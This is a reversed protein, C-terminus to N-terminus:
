KVVTMQRTLTIGGAELRYMYIGSSLGSADFSVQHRGAQRTEGVLTSVRRGLLDYVTLSVPGSEALEYRIVTVPNFPNPYNQSLATESPLGSPPEAPLPSGYTLYLEPGNAAALDHGSAKQPGSPAPRADPRAPAKAAPGDLTFEYEMGGVVPLRAGTRRDELYLGDRFGLQVDTATLTYTGPQSAEVHLPYRLGNRDTLSGPDPLVSIDLLEDGKQGALLVYQVSMPMLQYADGYVRDLSGQPGFGFWASNRMGEGSLELRVLDRDAQKGLFSGGSTRAQDHFAVSASGGAENHVFFAQFPAIIGDSLDGAGVGGSWTRWSGAGPDNEGTQEMGSDYNVDWVYAVDSLGTRGLDDFRVPASYPNGLLSWGDETENVDATHDATNGAGTVALMKPFGYHSGSDNPDDDEFVYALLGTGPAITQDLDDAATWDGSTEDWVFVNSEAAGPVNSNLPGQTWIPDLLASMTVEAPASLMRFGPTGTLAVMFAEDSEGFQLAPGTFPGGDAEHLRAGFGANGDLYGPVTVDSFFGSNSVIFAMGRVSVTPLGDLGLAEKSIAIEYGQRENGSNLVAYTVSGAPFVDAAAPGTVSGGGDEAGDSAPLVLFGSADAGNVAGSYDAMSLVVRRGVGDPGPAGYLTMGLDVEFDMTFSGSPYGEPSQNGSAALFGAAGPVGGLPQGPAVGNRESFDLMIGIADSDSLVLTADVGIYVSDADDYFYLADVTKGAGFGLNDNLRSALMRYGPDNLRGNVRVPPAESPDLVSITESASTHEGNGHHVLQATVTYTDADDLSFGDFSVNRQEGGGLNVTVTDTHVIETNNLVVSHGSKSDTSVAKGQGSERTVTLAVTVEQQLTADSALDAGALIEEGTLYEAHLGSLGTLRVGTDLEFDYDVPVFISYSNSRTPILVRSDGFVTLTDSVNGTIDVLQRNRWDDRINTVWVGINFEPHKNIAVILGTYDDTGDRQMVYVQREDTSQFGPWHVDGRATLIHHGGSAFQQRIAMLLNIEDRLGYYFYDRWWVQAFGPHTLMHAYILNKQNIIPAHGYHNDTGTYDNRDFDHNEVFPVIQEYPVGHNYLGSTHLNRIDYDVGNDSWAKYAFRINFDFIAPEKTTGSLLDLYTILRGIDGDYLEHVHFRGANAGYEVWNKLYEPHIGKVFDFRYGDLDLTTTLWDGWVKLSDGMPLTSGDGDHLANQYGFNNIYMQHFGAIQNDAFFDGTNNQNRVANPFFFDGGEGAPWAIRGSGHTLPFATYTSDGDPSFLSGGSRDTYFNSYPNDELIGGSRHNLVIDMYIEMGADKLDSIAQELQARTGYRTPIGSGDGPSIDGPQSDYEGLDYYDYPTYGVDFSGGGGKSPPPLWIADFGARGLEVSYYSLSDYWVGGPSVDWYFGQMMTRDGPQAPSLTHTSLLLGTVLAAFLLFHKM